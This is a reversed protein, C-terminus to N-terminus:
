CPMIHNFTKRLSEFWHLRLRNDREFSIWPLIYPLHRWMEALKGAALWVHWCDAKERPWTQWPDLIEAPPATSLVPRGMVFVSPTSFVFGVMLHAELDAEFSRACEERDYVRRAEIVPNYEIIPM